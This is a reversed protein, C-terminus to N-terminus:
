EETLQAFEEEFKEAINQDHIILLNEDNRTDGNKTPNFSGTIVTKGDIIFVKHHMNYKNNDWQVPIGGEKLKEFQTFANNQSKEFIGKVEVGQNFKEVLADGIKEHTFSFTMFHISENAAQLEELVKNACWDEPCFYNELLKGNLILSPTQTVKGKGFEGRWLEEFEQLYNEALKKSYIIVVNNNNKFNGNETPNFSGTIVIEKDLICFKNHMLGQKGDIRAFDLGAGNENDMVVLAHKEKLLAILPELNLDFFACQVEQSGEMIELIEQMCNERPCFHVELPIETDEIIIEAHEQQFFSAARGILQQGDLYGLFYLGALVLILLFITRLKM